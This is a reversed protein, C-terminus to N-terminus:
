ISSKVSDKLIGLIKTKSRDRSNRFHKRPAIRSTGFELFKSYPIKSFVVGDDDTTEFEVSNLFRGTDVSTPEAKRGAISSKVEGHLFLTSKDIGKKKGVEVDKKKRKLFNRAELIGKVTVEVSSM